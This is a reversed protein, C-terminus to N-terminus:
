GEIVSKCIEASYLRQKVFAQAGLLAVGLPLLMVASRRKAEAKSIPVRPLVPLGRAVQM